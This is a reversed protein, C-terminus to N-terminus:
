DCNSTLHRFSPPSHAVKVRVRNVIERAIQKAQRQLLEIESFESVVNALELLAADNDALQGQDTYVKLGRLWGFLDSASPRWSLIRPPTHM